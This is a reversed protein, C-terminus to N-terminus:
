DDASASVLVLVVRRQWASHRAVVYRLEGSGSREDYAEIGAASAEALTAGVVENVAPHQAACGDADVLRPPRAPQATTAPRPRGGAGTPISSGTRARRM